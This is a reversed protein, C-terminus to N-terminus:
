ILLQLWLYQFSQKVRFNRVLEPHPFRLKRNNQHWCLQTFQNTWLAPEKHFHCIDGLLLQLLPFLLSAVCDKSVKLFKTFFIAHTLSQASTVDALDLIKNTAELWLVHLHVEHQYSSVVSLLELLLKTFSLEFINSNLNSVMFINKECFDSKEAFIQGFDLNRYFISTYM